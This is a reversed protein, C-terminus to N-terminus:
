CDWRTWKRQKKVGDLRIDSSCHGIFELFNKKIVLFTGSNLRSGGIIYSESEKTHFDQTIFM